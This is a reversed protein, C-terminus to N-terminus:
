MKDRSNPQKLELEVQLFTNKSLLCTQTVETGHRRTAQIALTKIKERYLHAARSNYKANAATSTCGQQNFFTIQWVSM